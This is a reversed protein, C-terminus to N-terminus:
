QQPEYVMEKLVFEVSPEVNRVSNPTPAAAARGKGTARRAAAYEASMLLSKNFFKDNWYQNIEGSEARNMWDEAFQQLEQRADEAETKDVRKIREVILEIVANIKSRQDRPVRPTTPSLLHRVLAVLPAHLAKDRARPAFPTVSSPEVSRYLAGHWSSFAEFHARDRIKGNNYLTFVLGPRRRGVRSTAQIYEAMAKPQGNVVMLGLRPIDVGVSLMNTALLVDICRPDGVPVKLQELIEPIESSSKRSTMEEPNGLAREHEGSQKALAALSVRVDDEMLVLAGGLVKLSNFYAVLTWYPDREEDTGLGPDTGAQLLSASLAQLAFKESRGATTLGVYLRGNDDADEKAFCSNSANLGPPPFQAVRRDFVARVQEEARRITATSGVIKPPGEETSCLRDVASEYLGTLSGLPGAILHLEDQIILDPPNQGKIRGFLAATEKKRVIQAFKDVTGILLSPPSLYIDDDVTQVPIRGFGSPLSCLESSCICSVKQENDDASWKVPAACAPCNILQRPSSPANLERLAAAAKEYSNPTSDGGVWLGISFREVGLPVTAAGAQRLYDCATILAAARQFQQITLTRLTYRMLVGVGSGQDGHCMRRMFLVYASLLLYAETKGGGTPFWILDFIDRESHTRDSASSLCALTFGLQFPYWRFDFLDSKNTHEHADRHGSAWAAQIYMARNALRFATCATEDKRVLDIGDRIRALATSCRDLNEGAQLKLDDPLKTVLTRQLAIWKEYAEPVASLAELLAEDSAEAIELAHWRKLRTREIEAQLLPDGAPDMRKVVATPMWTLHVVETRKGSPTWEASCTHGVAYEEFDRYILDAIRQDEDGGRLVNPRPVFHCTSNCKAKASFQFFSAEEREIFGYVSLPDAEKEGGAGDGSTKEAEKYENVFQVTVTLIDGDRRVRRYLRLGDAILKDSTGESLELSESISYDERRWWARSRAAPMQQEEHEDEESEATLRNAVADEQKKLLTQEELKEFARYRGFNAMIEVTPTRGTPSVAFSFGCTSPKFSRFLAVEEQQEDDEGSGGGSNQADLKEDEDPSFSSSQPFLIATLYRNSAPEGIEEVSGLKPGILDLRVRRLLVERTAGKVRSM